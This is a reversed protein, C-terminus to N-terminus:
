QIVENIRVVGVKIYSYLSVYCNNLIYLNHTYFYGVLEGDDTNFVDVRYGREDGGQAWLVYARDGEIDLDCVVPIVTYGEEETEPPKFHAEFPSPGEVAWMLTGTSDYKFVRYDGVSTFYVSHEDDTDIVCSLYNQKERPIMNQMDIDISGFQRIVEGNGGILTIAPYEEDNYLGVGWSYRNIYIRSTDIVALDFIQGIDVPIGNCYSGDNQFVEIRNPRNVAYVKGSEDIDFHYLLNAFEGPGEGPKGFEYLFDGESSFVLIKMSIFDLIFLKGESDISLNVPTFCNDLDANGDIVMTQELIKIEGIPNSNGCSTSSIAIAIVVCYLITEFRESVTKKVKDIQLTMAMRLANYAKKMRYPADNIIIFINQM